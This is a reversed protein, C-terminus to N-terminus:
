KYLPGQIKVPRIDLRVNSVTYSAGGFQDTLWGQSDSGRYFRFEFGASSQERQVANGDFALGIAEDRRNEMLKAMLDVVTANGLIDSFFLPRNETPHFDAANPDLKEGHRKEASPKIKLTKLDITDGHELYTLKANTLNFGEAKEDSAAESLDLVLTGKEGLVTAQRGDRVEVATNEDVGMGYKLGQSKMIVLARAFRGRVLAHQDVFWHNDLFGLGRDVEKGMSVGNEMTKLVQGADRCMIQSMVAAGASTGAIVGGSQYVAWVADLLPTNKGSEDCLARTIREQAGGTFFVGDAQQVQEVFKPDHVAERYGIDLRRVAVPVVFADAGYQQLVEVVREGSERPNDSATPFVAIRPKTKTTVANLSAKDAPKRPEDARGAVSDAVSDAVAVTLETETARDAKESAAKESRRAALEVFRSWVQSNAYKLGGGVILLSGQPEDGHAFAATTFLSALALLAPLLVSANRRM